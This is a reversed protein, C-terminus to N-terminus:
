KMGQPYMKFKVITLKKCHSNTQGGPIVVNTPQYLQRMTSYSAAPGLPAVLLAKFVNKNLIFVLVLLVVNTM